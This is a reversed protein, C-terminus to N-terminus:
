PQLRVQVPPLAITPGIPVQNTGPSTNLLVNVLPTASFTGLGIIQGPLAGQRLITVLPTALFVGLGATQNSLGGQLLINVQPTAQVGVTTDPNGPKQGPLLVSVLPSGRYLGPLALNPVLPDSGTTVEVEDNWGDGDTDPNLFDTFIRIEVVDPLTDGDRDLLGDPINNFTRPNNPDTGILMEIGNTIGDRDFDDLSDPIGNHNQDPNNPDLGYKEEFADSLGDGDTDVGTMAEFYWVLSKNLHNGAADTVSSTLMARYRGPALPQTFRLIIRRAGGDYQITGNVPLDDTTGFRRDPGAGVVGFSGSRLTTPDLAENVSVVVETMNLGFGRTAPPGPRVRPPTHDPTVSVPLEPTWTSNGGTDTAKARLTFRTGSIAIRPVVLRYQYPYSVATAVKQDNLYFEVDRVGVDDSAVATVVALSAEEALAPNLPFNASLFVTPPNTGTDFAKYNVVTLGSAGEAVYALGDALALALSTGPTPIEALFNTTTAPNRLDFLQINQTGDNRPTVGVAAVGLGSGNPLIQKFSNPGLPSLPGVLIPNSADHIDVTAFGNYSTAYAYGVGASLRRTGTYNDPTGPLSLQGLPQLDDSLIRYSKLASASLTLLVDGTIVLDQIADGSGLRGLETGSALDIWVVQGDTTGLYVTGSLAALSLVTGPFLYQTIRAKAPESIDMIQLGSSGSAVAVWNGEIAVRTATGPTTIQALITPVQDVTRGLVAVGASGLAVAVHTSDVAVDVATGPLSTSALPGITVPTGDLPNTGGIVEAGDPIGDGDTDPNHPNTGVVNEAFDSLGDHDSDVEADYDVVGRPVFTKQGNGSSPFDVSGIAVAGNYVVVRSLRYNHFPAFIIGPLSGDLGTKGRRVLGSTLDELLYFAQGCLPLNGAKTLQAFTTDLQLQLRGYFDLPSQGGLLSQISTTIGQLQALAQPSLQDDNTAKGVLTKAQEIYALHQEVTTQIYETLVNMQDALQVLSPPPFLDLVVAGHGEDSLHIPRTHVGLTGVPNDSCSPDVGLIKAFCACCVKKADFARKAANGPGGFLGKKVAYVGGAEVVWTVASSAPLFSGVADVTFSGGVGAAGARAANAICQNISYNNQGVVGECPTPPPLPPPPAPSDGQSGPQAGHWGPKKVGYGPDSEVFNGDATVTMPGAVVWQGLDHDYSWLASKAGPALKLGTIRDPLNPFRVPVPRDFSNGGDTQISIDLTHTLGPPLPEPLRDPAVPSIGVRGGRTGDSSFLSNSPVLIQVGALAPNGALVEPSFTILTDSTASVPQLTGASILPLYIVGTGAALNSLSGFQAQWAKGIVPYYAGNPWSSALATRGDIHVFFRGSPSPVLNFFGNADTTTRLTEEAGDVTITVGALPLNTTGGQGDSVPDSAYVHGSIGTNFAPTTSATDFEFYGTGGPVGDGDADVALGHSDQISDGEITVRVRASAPLNELYFLTAKTHDRSLEIRSLIKRGAFSAYLNSSTLLTGNGLPVSFNVESRRTVSVGSEGNVPSTASVEAPPPDEQLYVKLWTLGGSNPANEVADHPNLPNLFPRHRLEYVDDIGDVDSDLPTALPVGIVRYFGAGFVAPAASDQLTSRSGQALSADVPTRISSLDTGRYLLYYLNTSAEHTVVLAGSPLLQIGV